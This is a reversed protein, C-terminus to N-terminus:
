NELVKAQVYEMCVSDAKAERWENGWSDLWAAFARRAEEETEERSKQAIFDRGELLDLEIKVRVIRGEIM